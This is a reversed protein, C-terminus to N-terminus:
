PSLSPEQTLLIIRHAVLRPIIKRIIAFTSIDFVQWENKYWESPFNYKVDTEVYEASLPASHGV